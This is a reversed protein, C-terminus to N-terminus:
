HSTFTLSLNLHEKRQLVLIINKEEPELWVIKLRKDMQINTHLENPYMM